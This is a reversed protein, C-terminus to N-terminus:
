KIPVLLVLSIVMLWATVDVLYSLKNRQLVPQETTTGQNVGATEESPNTPCSKNLLDLM